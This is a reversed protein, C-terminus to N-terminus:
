WIFEDSVSILGERATVILPQDVHADWSVQVCIHWLDGTKNVVPDLAIELCGSPKNSGQPQKRALVLAMCYAGRSRVVFNVSSTQGDSSALSAGAYFHSTM